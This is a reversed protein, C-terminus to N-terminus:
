NGEKFEDRMHINYRRLEDEHNEPGDGEAFILAERRYVGNKYAVSVAGDEGTDTDNALIMSATQSGDTSVKDVLKYKGAAPDDATTVCGLVSGRLLVGQGGALDIGATLPTVETGAFLSQNRTKGLEEYHGM